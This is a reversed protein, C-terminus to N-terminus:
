IIEKEYIFNTSIKQGGMFTFENDNRRLVSRSARGGCDMDM